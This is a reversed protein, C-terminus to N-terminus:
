NGELLNFSVTWVLEADLLLFVEECELEFGNCNNGEKAECIAGSDDQFINEEKAELPVEGTEDEIGTM